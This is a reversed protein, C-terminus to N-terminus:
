ETSQYLIINKWPFLILLTSKDALFIISDLYNHMDNHLRMIICITFLIYSEVLGSRKKKERILIQSKKM